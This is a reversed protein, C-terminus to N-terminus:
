KAKRIVKFDIDAENIISVLEDLIWPNNEWFEDGYKQIADEVLKTEGKTM